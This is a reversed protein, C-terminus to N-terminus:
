NYSGNKSCPIISYHTDQLTALYALVEQKNDESFYHVGNEDGGCVTGVVVEISGGCGLCYIDM